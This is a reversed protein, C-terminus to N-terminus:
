GTQVKRVQGSAAPTARVTAGQVELRNKSSDVAWPSLGLRAGAIGTSQGQSMIPDEWEGQVSLLTNATTLAWGEVLHPGGSTCARGLQQGPPVRALQTGPGELEEAVENHTPVPSGM